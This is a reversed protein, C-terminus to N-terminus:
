KNSRSSIQGAYIAGWSLFSIDRKNRENVPTSFRMGCVLGCSWQLTNSNLAAVSHQSYISCIDSIERENRELEPGAKFETELTKRGFAVETRTCLGLLFCVRHQPERNWVSFLTNKCHLSSGLFVDFLMLDYKQHTSITCLNLLTFFVGMTSRLSM